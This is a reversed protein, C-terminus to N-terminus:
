HWAFGAIKFPKGNIKEVEEITMGSKLGNEILTVRHERAM